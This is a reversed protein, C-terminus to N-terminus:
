AHYDDEVHDDVEDTFVGNQMVALEADTPVYLTPTLRALYLLADDEHNFVKLPAAPRHVTFVGNLIARVIRSHILVATGVGQARFRAKWADMFATMLSACRASADNITRADVYLAFREESAFLASALASLFAAFAAEQFTQARFICCVMRETGAGRACFITAVDTESIIQVNM